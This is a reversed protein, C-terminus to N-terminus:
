GAYPATLEMVRHVSIGPAARGRAYPRRRRARVRSCPTRACSSRGRSAPPRSRYVPLSTALWGEYRADVEGALVDPAHYRRLADNFADLELEVWVGYAFRDDLEPVPIEILGRVFRHVRGDDSDVTCFDGADWTRSELDDEPVALWADPRAARVDLVQADHYSGCVSCTYGM